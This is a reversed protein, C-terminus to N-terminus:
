YLTRKKYIRPKHLLKENENYFKNARKFPVLIIFFLITLPCLILETLLFLNSHIARGIVSLIIKLNM